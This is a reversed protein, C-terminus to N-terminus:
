RSYTAMPSSCTLSRTRKILIERVRFLKYLSEERVDPGDFTVKLMNLAFRHMDQVLLEAASIGCTLTYEGREV